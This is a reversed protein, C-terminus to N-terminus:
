LNRLIVGGLLMVAALPTLVHLQNMEKHKLSKTAFTLSLNFRPLMKCFNNEVQAM